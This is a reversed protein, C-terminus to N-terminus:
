NNVGRSTLVELRAPLIERVYNHLANIFDPTESKIIATDGDQGAHELKEAFASLEGNGINALAAKMGHMHLIYTRMDEENLPNGTRLIEDLATLSKGADKTFIEVFRRDAVAPTGDAPIEHTTENGNGAIHKNRILKNLVDNMQRIDIPKSIFGDFGNTSFFDAKGAVADATLAVISRKYGMSRIIKVAEIGDMKPMMHDMFIIDYVKGNKIKDIAEFGSEASDMHLKYPAMLGQAVYINTEVDDVILVSGYPMPEQTVQARKMHQRDDTRFKHLNEALEKGLLESGSIGQPICVTFTSGKGPESEIFIEGDMMRILNRTIGMGLGTGETSRNSEVNFRSYEEFLKGIQEKTM